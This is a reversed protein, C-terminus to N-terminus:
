FTLPSDFAATIWNIDTNADIAIVDFRCSSRDDRRGQLYSQATQAIRRQKAASISYIAGGFSRSRRYRVEVFVLQQGDRMILDIEGFRSHYNRKLLTLGQQQLYALAQSEYQQGTEKTKM